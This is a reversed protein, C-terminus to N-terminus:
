QANVPAINIDRLAAPPSKQPSHSNIGAPRAFFAIRNVGPNLLFTFAEHGSGKRISSTVKGDPSQFEFVVGDPNNPGVVLNGSVSMGVVKPSYFRVYVGEEGLWPGEKGDDFRANGASTTLDVVRLQNTKYFPTLFASVPRLFDELAFYTRPEGRRFADVFGTMGFAVHALMGYCVLVVVGARYLSKKWTSKILPELAICGIMSGLLITPAFDVQYRMTTAYQMFGEIFVIAFGLLMIMSAVFFVRQSFFRRIGFGITILSFLMVPSTAFFGASPEELVYGKPFQFPYFPRLHLFPFVPDLSPPCLANLFLGPPINCAHYMNSLDWETPGLMYSMGFESLSGFRIYNYTVVGLVCISFPLILSFGDLLMEKIRFNKERSVLLWVVFLVICSFLYIPRCGLSLGFAASAALFWGRHCQEGNWSRLLFALGLMAFFAGSTIAVDYVVPHRLVYPISNTLAIALIGMFVLLKNANPIFRRVCALLIYLSCLYLGYSFIAVALPESIKGIGLWRFPIFLVLAPVTGFYLYFRKGYLSVDLIRTKQNAIPDRRNKLDLLEQPPDILLDIRGASFSDALLNYFGYHHPVIDPFLFTSRVQEHYEPGVDVILPVGNTGAVWVYYALVLASVAAVTLKWWREKTPSDALKDVSANGTASCPGHKTM